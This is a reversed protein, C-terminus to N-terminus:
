GSAERALAMGREWQGAMADLPALDLPKKRAMARALQFQFSKATQAIEGFAEAAAVLGPAGQGALWRLHAEALGYCAGYQRLTAFSYAHFHSIDAALLGPLDAGFRGAFREFPNSRPAHDLHRALLPRAMRAVEAGRPPMYAPRRKVYEVYPPLMREHAVGGLQWIEDFDEGELEYYGANHFYGMWRRDLDIANVGITSKTRARRYATGATDPLYWSDVEVLPMNGARVQEVVHDVLRRWVALEQIDFGYLDYLEAHVPKFFTWQDGEFDIALTYALMALPEFGLGHVLEVVLDTYCNTEPWIRDPGHVAHRIYTAASLPAIRVEGARTRPAELEVSSSSM